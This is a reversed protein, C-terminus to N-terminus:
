RRLPPPPPPPPPMPIGDKGVQPKITNPDVSKPGSSATDKAGCGVASVAVAATETYGFRCNGVDCVVLIFCEPTYQGKPM